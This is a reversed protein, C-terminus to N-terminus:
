LPTLRFFPYATEYLPTNRYLLLFSKAMGLALVDDATAFAVPLRYRKESYYYGRHFTDYEIPANLTDRM